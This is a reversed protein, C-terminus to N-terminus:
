GSKPEPEPEAADASGQEEDLASSTAFDSVPKLIRLQNSKGPPNRFLEPRHRELIAREKPTLSALVAEGIRSASEAM